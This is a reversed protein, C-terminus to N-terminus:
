WAGPWAVKMSSGRTVVGQLRRLFIKMHKVEAHGSDWKQHAERNPITKRFYLEGLNRKPETEREAV